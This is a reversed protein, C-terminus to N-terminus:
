AAFIALDFLSFMRPPLGILATSGVGALDDADQVEPLAALDVTVKSGIKYPWAKPARPERIRGRGEESPIDDEDFVEGPGITAMYELIPTPVAVLNDSWPSALQNVQPTYTTDSAGNATSCTCVWPGTGTVTAIRKRQFVFLNRDWFALTQGIVPGTGTGTLTFSTPSGGSTVHMNQSFSPWPTVDAWGSTSWSVAFALTINSAIPTLPIYQHDGPMQARIWELAAQLQADTPIRSAGLRSALVTATFGCTGPGYLARYTFVQEFAVDPTLMIQEVLEADNDGGPPNQKHARIRNLYSADSEDLAGGSLGRGGSQEVVTAQQGAGQPPDTITLISGPALDTGPGVDRGRVRVHGGNTRTVTEAFEYRLKTQKNQLEKGQVFTAGGAATVVSVYGTAGRAIGRPLGIRAGVRDLRPGTADDENIGQAILSADSYLPLVLDAMLRADMDPQGSTVDAAPNLLQQDRKHRTVVTDRDPVFFGDPIDAQGM